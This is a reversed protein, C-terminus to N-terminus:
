NGSKGAGRQHPAQGIILFRIPPPALIRRIPVEHPAIAIWEAASLERYGVLRRGKLTLQFRKILAEATSM